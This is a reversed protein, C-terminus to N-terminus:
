APGVTLRTLHLSHALKFTNPSPAFGEVVVGNGDGVLQSAWVVNLQIGQPPIVPPPQCVGSTGNVAIMGFRSALGGVIVRGINQENTAPTWTLGLCSTGSNILNGKVIFRANMGLEIDANNKVAAGAAHVEFTSGTVSIESDNTIRVNGLVVEACDVHVEGKNTIAAGVGVGILRVEEMFGLAGTPAVHVKSNLLKVAANTIHLAGAVATNRLIKLPPETSMGQEVEMAAGQAITLAGSGLIAGGTWELSGTVTLNGAGKVVGGDLELVGVSVDEALFVTGGSIRLGGLSDGTQVTYVGGTIQIPLQPM